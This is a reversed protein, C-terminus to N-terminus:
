HAARGLAGARVFDLAARLDEIQEQSRKVALAYEEREGARAIFESYQGIAREANEIFLRDSASQDHDDLPDDLSLTTTAGKAAQARGEGPAVPPVRATHADMSRTCGSCAMMTIMALRYIKKSM